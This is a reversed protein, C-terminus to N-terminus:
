PQPALATPAPAPALADQASARRPRMQEPTIYGLHGADLREFRKTMLADWRARTVPGNAALQEFREAERDAGPRERGTRITNGAADAQMRTKFAAIEDQTIQGDHNADVREFIKARQALFEQLTIKGDGDKDAGRLRQQAFAPAAISALACFALAIYAARRRIM